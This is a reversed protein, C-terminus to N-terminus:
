SKLLRSVTMRPPRSRISAWSPRAQRRFHRNRAQAAGAFERDLADIPGRYQGLSQEGKSAALGERGSREVDVGHYGAEGLEEMACEAFSNFEFGNQRAVDPHGLGVTVLKFVGQEIEREVCAVGHGLAAAKRDLGGVRAETGIIDLCERLLDFRAIVDRDCYSIGATAHVLGDCLLRELREERGLVLPHAGAQSQALHEAENALGASQDPEVALGALSGGDADVKRTQELGRAFSGCRAHGGM